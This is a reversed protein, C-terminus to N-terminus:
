HLRQRYIAGGREQLPPPAPLERDDDDVYTSSGTVESRGTQSAKAEVQRPTIVPHRAHLRMFRPMVASLNLTSARKASWAPVVNPEQWEQKTRSRPNGRLIICHADFAFIQIRAPDVKSIHDRALPKRESV